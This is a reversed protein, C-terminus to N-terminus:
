GTEARAVASASLTAAPRRCLRATVRSLVRRTSASDADDPEPDPDPDPDATADTETSFAGGGSATNVSASAVVWRSATRTSDSFAARARPPERRSTTAAASAAAPPVSAPARTASAAIADASHRASSRVGCGEFAADEVTGSPTAGDRRTRPNTDRRRPSSSTKRAVGPAANAEGYTLHTRRRRRRTTRRASYPTNAATDNRAVHVSSYASASSVNSRAVRRQDGEPDRPAEERPPPVRM